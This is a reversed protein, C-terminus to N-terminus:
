DPNSRLAARLERYAEASLPVRVYAGRDPRELAARDSPPICGYVAKLASRMQRLKDILGGDEVTASMLKAQVLSEIAPMLREISRSRIARSVQERAAVLRQEIEDRGIAGTGAAPPRAARGSDQDGSVM